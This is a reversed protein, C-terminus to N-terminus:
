FEEVGDTVDTTCAPLCVLLAVIADVRRFSQKRRQSLDHMVREALRLIM